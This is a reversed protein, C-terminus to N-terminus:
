EPRASITYFPRHKLRSQDDRWEEFNRTVSFRDVCVTDEEADAFVNKLIRGVIISPNPERTFRPWDIGADVALEGLQSACLRGELKQATAELCVARLWQLDPNGIRRQEAEHGDLLPPLGVIEQLIFDLSQCWGRFDHRSDDTRPRRLRAWEKLITFVCGLYFPQNARVHHIVEGEPYARFKRGRARKQIRTIISRNALDRTLDAGNTSLYWNFTHTEVQARTRLSRVSVKGHGRIASEFVQSEVKGRINELIVFPNGRILEASISEDLSGVGGVAITIPAPDGGYIAVALKQRYTKGSQSQDAEAVDLPFDDGIWEGARLAPSLFSAFARSKDATTTFDFDVLLDLLARKAIDLPVAVAETTGTIYSGGNHPHWGPGLIEGEPTIIPCPSVQQIPPLYHRAPSSALLVKAAAASIRSTRWRVTEKSVERSAVRHGFEEALSAFREPSVPALDHGDVEFVGGQDGGKRYFARKPDTAGIVRFIKTASQVYSVEGAPIPFVNQPIPVGGTFSPEPAPQQNAEAQDRAQQRIKEADDQWDREGGWDAGGSAERSARGNHEGRSGQGNSSTTGPEPEPVGSADLTEEDPDHGHEMEVLKAGVIQALEQDEDPIAFRPKPM